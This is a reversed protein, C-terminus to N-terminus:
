LGLSPGLLLLLSPGPKVPHLLGEPSKVDVLVAEEGPALEFLHPATM